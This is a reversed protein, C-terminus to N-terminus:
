NQAGNTWGRRRGCPKHAAALVYFRVRQIASLGKTTLARFRLPGIRGIALSQKLFDLYHANWSVWCQRTADLVRVDDFGVRALLHRYEGPDAIYNEPCLLPGSQTVWKRFLIDTLLLRGGPKLVRFAECLFKQRTRFHFAAEVCIITDFSEDDFKLDTASMLLFRCGPANSRCTGLQKESINIGTIATPPYYKLLHRTTAGKGCAVDLITGRMEPMFALLKDMLNESAQRAGATHEDWSGFNAFDSDEFFEALLPIYLFDDYHRNVVAPLNTPLTEEKSLFASLESHGRTGKWVQLGGRPNPVYSWVAPTKAAVVPAFPNAAGLFLGEPTGLLTQSRLNLV